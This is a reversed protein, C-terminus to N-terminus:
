PTKSDQGISKGSFFSKYNKRDLRYIGKELTKMKMGNLYMEVGENAGLNISFYDKAKFEVAMGSTLIGSFLTKQDAVVDVRSDKKAEIRLVMETSNEVLSDLYWTSPSITDAAEPKAYLSEVPISSFESTIFEKKKMGPKILYILCIVGLGLGALIFLRRDLYRKRSSPEAPATIDEEMSEELPKKEELEKPPFGKSKEHQDLMKLIRSEDLDLFRAYAKLFARQYLKGPLFEFQDNELAELYQPRIKLEEAIEEINLKKSERQHRLIFGITDKSEEDDYQFMAVKM